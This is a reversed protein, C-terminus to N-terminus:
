FFEIVGDASVAHIEGSSNPSRRGIPGKFARLESVNPLLAGAAFGEVESTPGGAGEAQVEYQDLDASPIFYLKGDATIAVGDIIEKDPM